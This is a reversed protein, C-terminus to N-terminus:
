GYCVRQILCMRLCTTVTKLMPKPPSFSPCLSVVYKQCSSNMGRTMCANGSLGLALMQSQALAGVPMGICVPCSKVYMSEFTGLAATEWASISAPLQSSPAPLKTRVSNLCDPKEAIRRKWERPMSEWHSERRSWKAVSYSWWWSCTQAIMWSVSIEVYQLSTVWYWANLILLQGTHAQMSSKAQFPFRPSCSLCLKLFDWHHDSWM